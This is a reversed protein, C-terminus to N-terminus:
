CVLRKQDGYRRLFLAVNGLEGVTKVDSPLGHCLVLVHPAHQVSGLSRSNPVVVGHLVLRSVELRLVAPRVMLIVKLEEFPAVDGVGIWPDVGEHCQMGTAVHPMLFPVAGLLTLAVDAM